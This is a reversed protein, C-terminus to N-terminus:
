RRRRRILPLAAGAVCLGITTPEPVATIDISWGVLSGTDGGTWDQLTLTWNGSSAGGVFSAFTDPDNAPSPAVLPNSFRNYTGPAIPAGTAALSAAALFDAGGSNVFTYLGSLDSSDGLSTSTTGGVRVFVQADTGNPATLTAAVDGAWTHQRPASATGTGFTLAISNFATVPGGGAPVTITTSFVGAVGSAPSDPIDGGTGNFVTARATGAAALM